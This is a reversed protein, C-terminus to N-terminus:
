EVESLSDAYTRDAAKEPRKSFGGSISQERQM